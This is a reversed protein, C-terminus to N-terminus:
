KDPGHFMVLVSLQGYRLYYRLTTATSAPAVSVSSAGVWDYGFKGNLSM